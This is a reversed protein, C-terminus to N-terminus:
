FFLVFMSHGRRVLSLLRSLLIISYPFSHCARFFNLDFASIIVVRSIKGRRAERAAYFSPPTHTKRISPPGENHSKLPLGVDLIAQLVDRV